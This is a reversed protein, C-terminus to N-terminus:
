GRPKPFYIDDGCVICARTWDFAEDSLMAYVDAWASELAPGAAETQAPTFGCDLCGPTVDGLDSLFIDRLLRDTQAPTLSVTRTSANM